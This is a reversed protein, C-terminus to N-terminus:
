GSRRASTAAPSGARRRSGPPRTSTGCSSATSRCGKSTAAWPRGGATPPCPWRTSRTTASASRRASVSAPPWTTCPSPATAVTSPSSRGTRRGTGRFAYGRTGGFTRVAQLTELDYLTLEGGLSGVYLQDALTISVSRLAGGPINGVLAGTTNDFVDVGHRTGVAVRHGTTSIAMAESVQGEVAIPPGLERSTPDLSVVTTVLNENFALLLHSKGSEFVLEDPVDALPKEPVLRPDALDVRVPLFAEDTGAIGQLTGDDRWSPIALGELEQDVTASAVDVVSSVSGELSTGREVLLRGSDPSFTGVDNGPAVTRTIPGSGDLRIRSVVPENNGISVLETGDRAPWLSGSNGNQVDLRRLLEGAGLAREELRGFM